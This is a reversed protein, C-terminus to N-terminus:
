QIEFGMYVSISIELEGPSIPTRADEAGAYGPALVPSPIYGGSESIYFPKGLQVDAVSAIQGAKAMADQVAEERAQEYVPTPDDVTFSLSEVRTLDGGAEAVADIVAGAGDIERIKVRVINTVEYGITVLDEADEDWRKVIDISYRQTQIDKEAVGQAALVTMVDNMAAIAASQAEGVTQELAEVGLVLVAVDPEATVRGTGNVWIGTEQSDNLGVAALYDRMEATGLSNQASVDDDSSCGILLVSVAILAVLLGATLTKGKM